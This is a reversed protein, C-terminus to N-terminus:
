RISYYSYITFIVKNKESDYDVKAIDMLRLNNEFTKFLNKLISYSVSSLSIDMKISGIGEPLQEFIGASIVKKEDSDVRLKPKLQSKLNEEIKISNLIVGNKLAMSEIETILHINNDGAPVMEALRKKDADSISQYSDKLSRIAKLDRNKNEYDGQLNKKAAEDGKITKQYQPYVFFLLGSAFIIFVLALSLYGFYDILFLNIRRKLLSDFKKEQKDDLEEGSPPHVINKDKNEM